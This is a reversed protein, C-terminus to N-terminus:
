QVQNALDEVQPSKLVQVFCYEGHILVKTLWHGQEVLVSTLVADELQNECKSFDVEPLDKDQIM